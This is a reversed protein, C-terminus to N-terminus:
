VKTKEEKLFDSLFPIKKVWEVALIYHVFKLFRNNPFLSILNEINSVAEFWIAAWVTIKLISIFFALQNICLGIIIIVVFTGIYCFTKAFSWRARSSTFKEGKKWSSVIGTIFDALFFFFFLTFLGILENQYAALAGVAFIVWTIFAHMLKQLM